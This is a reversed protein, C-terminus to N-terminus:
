ERRRRRLRVALLLALFASDVRPDRSSSCCGGDDHPATSPADPGVAPADRAGAADALAADALHADPVAADALAADLVVAADPLVAADPAPADPVGADVAVVADFAIHVTTGTPGVATTTIHVGGATDDFTQGMQLAADSVDATSPTMDLLVPQPQTIDTPVLRIQPGLVAPDNPFYNDFGYPQRFDLYLDHAPDHQRHVRLGVVGAPQSPGSLPVITYDGDVTATQMNQSDFWGLVERTWAPEYPGNPGMNAFHDGYESSTCTTSLAVPTGSGDVCALSGAHYLGMNHGLEHAAAGAFTFNYPALFIQHGPINASGGPCSASNWTYIISDYGDLDDGAAAAADSAGSIFAAYNCVSTPLSYWGFVDGTPGTKGEVSFNGYSWQSYLSRVSPADSTTGDGPATFVLARADAVTEPESTDGALKLLVVAVKRVQPTVVASSKSSEEPSGNCAVLTATAAIWVRCGCRM